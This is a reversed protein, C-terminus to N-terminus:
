QYVEEIRKTNRLITEYLDRIAILREVEEYSIEM